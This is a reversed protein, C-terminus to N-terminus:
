PEAVLYTRRLSKTREETLENACYLGMITRITGSQNYTYVARCELDRFAVWARQSKILAPITELADPNDKGEKKLSQMVEQYTKNLLMDAQELARQGCFNIAPTSGDAKECFAKAQADTMKEYNIDQAMLLRGACFVLILCVQIAQKM